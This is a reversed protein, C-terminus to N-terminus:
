KFYVFAFFAYSVLFMFFLFIYWGMNDKKDERHDENGTKNKIIDEFYNNTDMDLEKKYLNLIFKALQFM